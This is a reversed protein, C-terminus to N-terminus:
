RPGRCRSQRGCFARCRLRAAAIDEDPKGKLSGHTRLLAPLKRWRMMVEPPSARGWLSEHIREVSARALKGCAYCCHVTRSCQLAVLLLLMPTCAPLLLPQANCALEQARRAQDEEVLGGRAEVGELGELCAGAWHPPFLSSTQLKDHNNPKTCAGTVVQSAQLPGPRRATSHHASQAMSINHSGGAKIGDLGVICASCLM